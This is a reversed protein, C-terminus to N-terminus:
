CETFDFNKTLYLTLNQDQDRFPFDRVIKSNASSKREDMHAAPVASSERASNEEYNINSIKLFLKRDMTNGNLHFVFLPCLMRGMRIQERESQNNSCSINAVLPLSISVCTEDVAHVQIRSLSLQEPVQLFHVNNSRKAAGSFESVPRDM